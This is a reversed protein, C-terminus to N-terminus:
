LRTFIDPKSIKHFHKSRFQSIYILKVFVFQGKLGGGKGRGRWLTMVSLLVCFQLINTIFASNQSLLLIPSGKNASMGTGKDKGWGMIEIIWCKWLTKNINSTSGNTWHTNRTEERGGGDNNALHTSSQQAIRRYQDRWQYLRWLDPTVLEFCM